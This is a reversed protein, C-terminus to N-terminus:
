RLAFSLDTITRGREVGRREYMTEPRWALPPVASWRADSAVVNRVHEAYEDVDTAVHLCGGPRLRAALLDLTHPRIIRRHEDKDKAQVPASYKNSGSKTWPDPFFVCVEDFCPEPAIHSELLAVADIRCIKVNSADAEALRLLAAAVGPRHVEVGIFRTDPRAAAMGALSEGHGFGVDLVCPGKDFLYAPAITQNWAVDVGYRPWLDRLAAKQRRTCQGQRRLFTRPATPRGLRIAAATAAVVLVRRM